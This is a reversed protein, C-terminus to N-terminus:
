WVVCEGGRRRIGGGSPGGERPDSQGWDGRQWASGDAYEVRNIFAKAELREEDSGDARVVNTPAQPTVAGLRKVGGPKIVGECLFLRRSVPAGSLDAVQYEWLVSKVKKPGKNRVTLRYEYRHSHSSGGAPLPHRAQAELKRLESTRRAIAEKGAAEGAAIDGKSVPGPPDPQARPKTQRGPKIKMMIVELNVVELPPGGPTVAPNQGSAITQTLLLLCVLRFM